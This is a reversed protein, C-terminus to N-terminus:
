DLRLQQLLNEDFGGVNRGPPKKPMKEVGSTAIFDAEAQVGLTSKIATSQCLNVVNAAGRLRTSLPSGM